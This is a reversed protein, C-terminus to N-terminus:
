LKSPPPLPNNARIINCPRWDQVLDALGVSQVFKVQPETINIFGASPYGSNQLVEFCMFNDSNFWLM